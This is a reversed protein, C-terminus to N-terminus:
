AVKKLSRIPIRQLTQSAPDVTFGAGELAIAGLLPEAGEPGFIIKAITFTNLFRLRAWGYTLEIPQGDALEYMDSGEPQIGAQRLASGPMLCDIAGTDVLFKTEVPSASRDLSEVTAVTYTLGVPTGQKRLPRPTM